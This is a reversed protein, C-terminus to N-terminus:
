HNETNRHNFGQDDKNAVNEGDYCVLAFKKDEEFKAKTSRSTLNLSGIVIPFIVIGTPM